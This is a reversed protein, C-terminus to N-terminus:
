ELDRRRRTAEARAALEADPPYTVEVLNLGHAPAVLVDSARETRRLLGAPWDAPKRGEGVALLAGVLSRVMQQCFADAAVTAVLVGDPDRRWDLRSIARITSAHEKRRCFAVFDHLGGLGEAALNLRDPADPRPRARRRTQQCAGIAGRRDL